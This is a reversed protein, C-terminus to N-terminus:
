SRVLAHGGYVHCFSCWGRDVPLICNIRSPRSFALLSTFVIISGRFEVPISWVHQDFSLWPEGGGTFMFSYNKFEAYWKYLEGGYTVEQTVDAIWIGFLHWSTLYIFTVCIVPIFLRLWRRFLASCLNESLKLHEGAHILSMPKTSLVYGSIVFFITVAYKGDFGFGREFIVDAHISERAWLQHHHWYVMFAAFGRLGDLYATRRLNKRRTTPSRTFLTPLSLDSWIKSIRTPASLNTNLKAPEWYGKELVSDSPSSM